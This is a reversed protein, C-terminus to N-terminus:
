AADEILELVRPRDGGRPASLDRVQAPDLRQPAPEGDNELHVLPLLLDASQRLVRAREGTSLRVLSGAPYVGNVEIFRRLLGPSFHDKMSIMVRYARVPRMKPKYPRVATLAEYVDCIKVIQTGIADGPAHLCSPYGGGGLTRHHGFATAISLPDAKPLGLLIEAGHTTHKNMEAREEPTLAGTSHLVEFPVRAKGIDHLLSALGIRLLLDEDEVLSRAFNLALM